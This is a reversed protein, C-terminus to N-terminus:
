LYKHLQDLTIRNEYIAKGIVVSQVGTKELEEIDNISSIGGSAIIHVEALLQLISKYLSIAPGNLMGDRSIDTCLVKRIGTQMKEILFDFLDIDTTTMWGSIAIKYDRVDAGLIIKDRGYKDVWTDLNCPNTIAVSGITAMKAGNDFVKQIDEDSKIGGGFDIVLNTQSAIDSLVKMNVVHKAKAGDLDVLHLRKLGADEFQKAVEVPQENYIKKAEYNGQELRVCKGDIIDIAPIIEIM